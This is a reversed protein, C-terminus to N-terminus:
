VSCWFAKVPRAKWRSRIRSPLLGTVMTSFIVPYSSQTESRPVDRYSHAPQSGGLLFSPIGLYKTMARRLDDDLFPEPPKSGPSKAPYWVQASFRRPEPFVTSYTEQRSPDIFDLVTTGVAFPGQPAPFIVSACSM